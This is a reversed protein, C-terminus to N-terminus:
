GENEERLDEHKQHHIRKEEYMKQDAIELLEMLTMGPYHTSIAHGLSYSIKPNRGLNNETTVKNKIKQIIERVQNDDAMYVVVIFEDGGFRGIFNGTPVTERLISAFDSIYMDGAEHGYKDNTYKLYNLDIMLVGTPTEPVGAEELMENCQSKNFLGTQFDTYAKRRSESLSRLWMIIVYLFFAIIIHYVGDTRTQFTFNIMDWIGGIIILLPLGWFAFGTSDLKHRVWNRIIEYALSLLVLSSLVHMFILNDRLDLINFFQLIYAISSFVVNIWCVLDLLQSKGGKIFSKLYYIMPIGALPIVGITIYFLLKPNINFLITASKLDAVKLVGLMMSFIGLYILNRENAKHRYYYSLQIAILLIGSVMCLICIVLILLEDQIIEKFINYHTGMKFEPEWAKIGEYVPTIEVEVVKGKDTPFLPVIVWEAGVTKGIKRGEPANLLYVVEDDITVKVYQHRVYFALCNEGRDMNGVNVKYKKVIGLPAEIDDKINREAQEIYVSDGIKRQNILQNREGIQFYILLGMFMIMVLIWVKIIIKEERLKGTIVKVKM